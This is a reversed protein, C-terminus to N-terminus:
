HISYVHKEGLVLRKLGYSPRESIPRIAEPKSGGQNGTTQIRYSKIQYSFFGRGKKNCRTLKTPVLFIM